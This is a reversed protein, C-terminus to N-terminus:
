IHNRALLEMKQFCIVLGAGQHGEPNEVVQHRPPPPSPPLFWVDLSCVGHSAKGTKRKTNETKWDRSSDAGIFYIPVAGRADFEFVPARLVLFEFVRSRFASFLFVTFSYLLVTFGFVRFLSFILGLNLGFTQIVFVTKRSPSLLYAAVITSHLKTWCYCLRVATTRRLSTQMGVARWKM